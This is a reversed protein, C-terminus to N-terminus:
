KGLDHSQMNFVDMIETLAQDDTESLKDGKYQHLFKGEKFYIMLLRSDPQDFDDSLSLPIGTALVPFDRLTPMVNARQCLVAQIPHGDEKTKYGKEDDYVSLLFNDAPRFSALKATDETDIKEILVIECGSSAEAAVAIPSCMVLGVIIALKM